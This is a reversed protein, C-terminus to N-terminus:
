GSRRGFRNDVFENGRKLSDVVDVSAATGASTLEVDMEAVAVVLEVDVDILEVEVDELEVELELEVLELVVVDDEVDVVAAAREGPAM